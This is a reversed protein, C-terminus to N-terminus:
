AQSIPVVRGALFTRRFRIRPAAKAHALSEGSSGETTRTLWFISLSTISSPFSMRSRLLTARPRSAGSNMGMGLLASFQQAFAPSSLLIQGM